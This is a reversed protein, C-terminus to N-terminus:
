HINLNNTEQVGNKSEQTLKPTKWSSGLAVMLDKWGIFDRRKVLYHLLFSFNFLLHILIYIIELLCRSNGQLQEKQTNFDKGVHSIYSQDATIVRYKLETVMLWSVAAAETHTRSAALVQKSSPLPLPIM